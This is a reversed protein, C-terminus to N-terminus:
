VEQIRRITGAGGEFACCRTVPKKCEGRTRCLQVKWLCLLLAALIGTHVWLHSLELEHQGRGPEAHHSLLHLRLSGVPFVTRDRKGHHRRQWPQIPIAAAAGRPCAEHLHLRHRGPLILHPRGTRPLHHRQLRHHVRHHDTVITDHMATDDPDRQRPHGLGPTGSLTTLQPTPSNSPRLTKHGVLSIFESFPLGRDRAFAFLQRSTTTIQNVSCVLLLLCLFATMISTGVKSGTANYLIQIWPQGFPTTLLATVDDGLTSMATVTMVFGLVYNVVATAVMARPLVWAADKLEESLHCSSDAGILTVVPGLIGALTAVGKSGWGSSDEFDTWVTRVDSRPGMVWLVVLFVFFGVVHLVMVIGDILPLKRVLVTNWLVAVLAVAISLLTSHWGRITYSPMNLAMLGQLQQTTAYATTAM